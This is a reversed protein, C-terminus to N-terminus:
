LSLTPVSLAADLLSNLAPALLNPPGTIASDKSHLLVLGSSETLKGEACPLPDASATEMLNGLEAIPSHCIQRTRWYDFTHSLTCLNKYRQRHGGSATMAHIHGGPRNEPLRLVWGAPKTM